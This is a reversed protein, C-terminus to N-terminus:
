PDRNLDDRADGPAADATETAAAPDPEAVLGSRLERYGADDVVLPDPNKVALYLTVFGGVVATAPIAIAVWPWPYRYWPLTQGSASPRHKAPATSMM